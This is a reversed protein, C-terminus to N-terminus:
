EELPTVYQVGLNNRSIESAILPVGCTRNEERFCVEGKLRSNPGTCPVVVRRSRQEQM